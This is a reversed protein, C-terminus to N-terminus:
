SLTLRIKILNKILNNIEQLLRPHIKIMLFLDQSKEIQRRKM